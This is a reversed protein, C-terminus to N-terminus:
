GEKVVVQRDVLQLDRRIKKCGLCRVVHSCDFHLQEYFVEEEHGTEDFQVVVAGRAQAHVYTDM